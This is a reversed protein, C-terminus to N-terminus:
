VTVKYMLRTTYGLILSKLVVDSINMDQHVTLNVKRERRGGNGRLTTGYGNAALRDQEVQESM